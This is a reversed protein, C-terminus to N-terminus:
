LMVLLRRLIHDSSEQNQKQEKTVVQQAQRAQQAERILENQREQHMHVLQKSFM